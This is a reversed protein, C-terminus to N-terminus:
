RPQWRRISEAPCPRPHGRRRRSAGPDESDGRRRLGADDLRRSLRLHRARVAAPYGQRAPHAHGRPPVARRLVPAIRGDDRRDADGRQEGDLRLGAAALDGQRRPEDVRRATGPRRHRHSGPHRRAPPRTRARAGRRLRIRPDARERGRRGIAGGDGAHRLLHGAGARRRDVGAGACAAHRRRDRKGSRRLPHHRGARFEAIFSPPVDYPHIECYINLERVRRAILQTYQAGFDLILIKCHM